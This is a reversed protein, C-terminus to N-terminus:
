LVVNKQNLLKYYLSEWMDIVKDFSFNALIHERGAQGMKKRENESLEMLRLMARALAKPDKPPVLYGTKNNIVIEGNGGVDTAVVPLGTSSAELLVNPMGEWASSMVYADAANMLVPIDKRVGLFIVYKTIKLRKALNRLDNHLPGDGAILLLTEQHKAIVKSFATLLNPYDKAPYFRGVALWVFKNNLNLEKRKYLRIELKFKFRETDIGNPIYCIKHIPTAGISIYRELGAKSVQTTMDCLPDTLRYLLERIKGGEKISHVSCVLVPAKYFFRTIRAFFNAHVMFGHIIHPQWKHIIKILKFIPRPDPLKRKIGLSCVPISALEFDQVYAKPPMLSVVKINWGRSKLRVALRLLQTEAGGYDLDTIIFLLKINKKLNLYKSDIIMSVGIVLFHQVFSQKFM